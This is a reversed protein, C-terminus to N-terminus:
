LGYWRLTRRIGEEVPIRARLGLEKEARLTSPVYNCSHSANASIELATGPAAQAVTRALDLITLAYPSGVNYPRASDGRVLITWLWIALDAAYLYSRYPTGDGNIRIPRGALADGIFNGIAFNLNLPLHPGTFTFLRAILASFGYQGAYLVCLLESLRKAQGYGTTPTEAYEEALHTVNAPQKGYVAGSSTFLLRRVGSRAAFELLHRTAAIDHNSAAHILYAFDGAPFAFDHVEGRITQVAPHRALHPSERLFRPPNRTLITASVHLKLQDNAYLLSELLWKGVFGTAGTIFIHAGALARFTDGAHELIHNRDEVPLQPM